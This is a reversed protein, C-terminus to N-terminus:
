LTIIHWVQPESLFISRFVATNKPASLLVQLSLLSRLLSADAASTCTAFPTQRCHAVNDCTRQRVLFFVRCYDHCWALSTASNRCSNKGTSSSIAVCRNRPLVVFIKSFPLPKKKVFSFVTGFLVSKRPASLLVQVQMFWSSVLVQIKRTQWNRWTRM